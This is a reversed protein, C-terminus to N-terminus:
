LGIAQLMILEGEHAFDLILFLLELIQILAYLYTIHEQNMKICDVPVVLLKLSMM